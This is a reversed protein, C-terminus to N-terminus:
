DKNFEEENIRESEFTKELNNSIVNFFFTYNGISTKSNSNVTYPISYPISYSGDHNFITDDSYITDSSFITDSKISNDIYTNKYFNLTDKGKEYMPNIVFKGYCNNGIKKEFWGLGAAIKLYYKGEPINSINFKENKRVYSIRECQGTEFNMLKIVIDTGDGVKIELYNDIDARNDLYNYCQDLYQSKNFFSEKWGESIMSKIEKKIEKDEISLLISENNRKEKKESVCSPLSLLLFYLSIISIIFVFSNKKM